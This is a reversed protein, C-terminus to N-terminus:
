LIPSFLRAVRSTVNFWLSRNATQEATILTSNAFDQELMAEVDAAFTRDITVVTIEFNLRFSRNDFNATGIVSVDDDLLMVKQHMFGRGYEYMQVGAQTVYPVYSMAARKVLWKDALGPIIIRVDLGRMAAIQLATIIGEDPVFYPSAIWIRRQASHIAHTFFFGCSEYEDNPGSPLVFMTKDAQQAPQPDWDLQPVTETAWHWDELFTLQAALAAPGEFQMHTDRWPTLKSDKHVYEDGVNLGGVFAERGDIVVIKRHNRFNIQFRNSWGRTTKMGTVKVGATLLEQEYRNSLSRSGVDDYLLFVQCGRKAARILRDKFQDGLDDDRVIFFEALVYEKARDIAEFMAAFTQEGDILLKADNGRIYPLHALRELVRAEGFLRRDSDVSFSSTHDGLDKVIGLMKLDQNRRASVYGYFKRRGFVWFLPVSIFPWTLLAIAWAIAGQTTRARMVALVASVAGLCGFLFVTVGILTLSEFYTM